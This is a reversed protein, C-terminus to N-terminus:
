GLVWLPDHRVGEVIWELHLHPGTSLGTSGVLAIREGRRLVDGEQAILRQCHAYKSQSGDPHELVLYRGDISNSGCDLVVGDAVAHIASGEAAALDVGSHFDPMGTIPHTRPGFASTITGALPATLSLQCSVPELSCGEPVEGAKVQHPWLGGQGGQVPLPEPVLEEESSLLNGPEEYLYQQLFSQAAQSLEEGQPFGLPELSEGEGPNLLQGLAEKPGPAGSFSAGLVLACLILQCFLIDWSGWPKPGPQSRQKRYGQQYSM